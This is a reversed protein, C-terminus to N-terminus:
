PQWVGRRATQTNTSEVVRGGVRQCRPATETCRRPLEARAEGSDGSAPGSVAYKHKYLRHRM